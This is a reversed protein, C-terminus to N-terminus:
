ILKKCVVGIIITDSISEITKYSILNPNLTKQSYHWIAGIPAFEQANAQISFTIVIILLIKKM